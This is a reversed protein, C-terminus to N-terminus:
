EYFFRRSLKAFHLCNDKVFCMTKEWLQESKYDLVIDIMVSNYIKNEIIDVSIGDESKMTKVSFLQSNSMKAKDIWREGITFCVLDDPLMVDPTPIANDQTDIHKSFTIRNSMGIRTLVQPMVDFFQSVAKRNMKDKESEEVTLEALEPEEALDKFYNHKLVKSIRALLQIDLNNRKFIDYVNNRKCYIADAFETISWEQKRVESEIRNGITKEM